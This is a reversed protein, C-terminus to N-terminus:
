ALWERSVSVRTVPRRSRIAYQMRSFKKEKNCVSLHTLPQVTADQPNDSQEVFERPKCDIFTSARYPKSAVCCVSSLVAGERRRAQCGPHGCRSAIAAM